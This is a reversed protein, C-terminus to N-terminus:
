EVLSVPQKGKSLAEAAAHAEKKIPYYRTNTWSTQGKNPGTAYFERVRFEDYGKQTFVFFVGGKGQHIHRDYERDKHQLGGSGFEKNLAKMRAFTLKKSRPKSKRQKTAPKGVKHKVLRAKPKSKSARKKTM